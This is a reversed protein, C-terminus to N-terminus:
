KKERRWANDYEDYFFDLLLQRNTMFHTGLARKKVGTQRCTALVVLSSYDYSLSGVVIKGCNVHLTKLIFVVISCLRILSTLVVCVFWCCRRRRNRIAIRLQQNRWSMPHVLSLLSVLM